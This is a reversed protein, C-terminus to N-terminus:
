RYNNEYLRKYEGLDVSLQEKQNESEALKKQLAQLQNQLEQNAALVTDQAACAQIYQNEIKNFADEWEQLYHNLTSMAGRIEGEIQIGMRNLWFFIFPHAQMQQQLIDIYRSLNKLSSKFEFLSYQMTNRYQNRNQTM